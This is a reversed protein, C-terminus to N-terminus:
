LIFNKEEKYEDIIYGNLNYIKYASNLDYGSTDFFARLEENDTEGVGYVDGESVVDSYEEIAADVQAIDQSDVNDLADEAFVYNTFVSLYIVVALISIIKTIKM